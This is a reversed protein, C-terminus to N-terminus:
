TDFLDDDDDLAPEVAVNMRYRSGPLLGFEKALAHFAASHDRMVQSAPHKASRGDHAPDSVTSGEELVRNGAAQAIAAHTLALGLAISDAPSYLGADDLLNAMARFTRKVSRELYAPVKVPGAAIVPHAPAPQGGPNGRRLRVVNSQPLPGRTGM